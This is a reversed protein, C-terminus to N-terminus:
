FLDIIGLDLKPVRWLTPETFSIKEPSQWWIVVYSIKLVHFCIDSFLFFLVV